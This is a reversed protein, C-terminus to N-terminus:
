NDNEIQGNSIIFLSSIVLVHRINIFQWCKYPKFCSPINIKMFEDNGTMINERCNMKTIREHKKLIVAYAYFCIIVVFM